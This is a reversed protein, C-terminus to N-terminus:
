QFILTHAHACTDASGEFTQLPRSGWEGSQTVDSTKEAGPSPNEVMQCCRGHQRPLTRKTCRLTNWIFLYSWVFPQVVVDALTIEQWRWFAKSPHSLPSHHDCNVVIKSQNRSIWVVVETKAPQSNSVPSNSAHPKFSVPQSSCGLGGVGPLLPMLHLPIQKKVKACEQFDTTSKLLEGCPKFSKTPRIFTFCM